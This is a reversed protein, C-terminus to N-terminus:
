KGALENFASKYSVQYLLSTNAGTKPDFTAVKAIKTIIVSKRMIENTIYSAVVEDIAETADGDLTAVGATVGGKM